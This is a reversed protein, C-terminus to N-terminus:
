VDIGISRMLELANSKQVVGTHVKYDFLLKDGEFQDQFHMNKAPLNLEDVAKTITLDHTTILGISGNKLMHTIISKAGILRDHSNTGHLLEDMLFLVPTNNKAAEVIRKVQLIEAYFKSHGKELSDQVNISSGLILPSVSLSKGRIPAGLYSMVLNIGVVRLFTSKGCMNSGSIIWLRSNDTSLEISNRICEQDNMLPHGLEEGEFLAPGEKIIPYSDTPHEYAYNAISNIAEFEGVSKLWKPIDEGHKTRWSEIKLGFHVSWMFLYAIVAFLQNRRMDLRQILKDFKSIEKSAIGSGKGLETQLDKLFPSQFSKQELINLLTSIFNLEKNPSAMDAFMPSLKKNIFSYFALEILLVSFFIIPAQNFYGWHILGILMGISLIWAIIKYKLLEKESFLEPSSAWKIIREPHVTEEITSAEVALELRFDVQTSLEKAAEQRADILVKTPTTSLWLKLQEKGSQTFATCLLNFLSDKGFIDLDHAFLHDRPATINHEIQESHWDGNIRDIGRKYFAIKFETKKQKAVILEHIVMLCIFFAVFSSLWWASFWEYYHNFSGLAIGLIFCSVRLSSIGDYNKNLKQLKRNLAEIQTQYNLLPSTSM